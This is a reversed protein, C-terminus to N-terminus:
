ANIGYAPAKKEGTFSLSRPDHYKKGGLLETFGWVRADLRDPSDEGVEWTCLQDEMGPFTGVHHIRGQEDLAAIPEARTHKGKSARVAKYAVPRGDDREVMRITHQVMDGGQNVEAIIRDAELEHYLNIAKRAWEDPSYRGSIDKLLYGHGNEGLGCAVIGTENSEEKATVAPDIAIVIRKLEPLQEEAIRNDQLMKRTWLAGPMEDLLKAHLEQEGLSTGEYRSIIDQYFPSLNELNEYTSGTSVVVSKMQLLERILSIPKPTTTVCIKPDGLRMGFMLMDWSERVYKFACLEDVWATDFQPGRLQEPSHGSFVTARAGNAWTLSRNTPIYEPREEPPGINMIGSEGQIMVDRADGPTPGLFCIRKAEGSNVRGRVWEAGARTKGSGRGMLQLWIRKDEADEPWV